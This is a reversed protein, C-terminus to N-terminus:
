NNDNAGAKSATIIINNLPRGSVTIDSSTSQISYTIEDESNVTFTLSGNDLTYLSGNEKVKIATGEDGFNITYSGNEITDNQFYIKMNFCLESGDNCDNSPNDNVAIGIYRTDNLTVNHIIAYNGTKTAGDFELSYSMAASNFKSEETM